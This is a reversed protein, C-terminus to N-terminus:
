EEDVYFWEVDNVRDYLDLERLDNDLINEIDDPTADNAVELTRLITYSVHIYKM